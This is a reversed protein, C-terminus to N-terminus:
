IGDRSPLNAPILPAADALSVFPHLQPPSAQLHLLLSLSITLVLLTHSAGLVSYYDPFSAM